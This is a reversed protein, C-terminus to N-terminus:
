VLYIYARAAMGTGTVTLIASLGATSLALRDASAFVLERDDVGGAAVSLHLEAIRDAAVGSTPNAFLELKATGATTAGSGDAILLLEDVFVATKDPFINNYTGAGDLHIVRGKRNLAM